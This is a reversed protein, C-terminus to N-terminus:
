FHSVTRRILTGTYRHTSTGFKLFIDENGVSIHGFVSVELHRDCGDQINLFHLKPGLQHIDIQLGSIASIRGNIYKWSPPRGGDQIHKVGIKSQGCLKGQHASNEMSIPM